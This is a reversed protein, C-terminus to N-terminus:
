KYPNNNKKSYIIRNVMGLPVDYLNPIADSHTSDVYLNPEHPSPRPYQARPDTIASIDSFSPTGAFALATYVFYTTMIIVVSYAPLLIAWERSPYWSVGLYLIYVDPLLAWLLYLGFAISTSTWAVFGYFEPARSRYETRPTPPITSPVSTM